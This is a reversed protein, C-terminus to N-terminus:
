RVRTLSLPERERAPFHGAWASMAAVQISDRPTDGHLRTWSHDYVVKTWVLQVELLQLLLARTASETPPQSPSLEAVFGVSTEFDPDYVATSVDGYQCSVLYAWGLLRLQLARVTAQMLVCGMLVPAESVVIRQRQSLDLKCVPYTLPELPEGGPFVDLTVTSAVASPGVVARCGRASVSGGKVLGGYSRDIGIIVILPQGEEAAKAAAGCVDDAVDLLVQKQPDNGGAM